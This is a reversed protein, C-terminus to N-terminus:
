SGMKMELRELIMEKENGELIQPQAYDFIKVPVFEIDLIEADRFTIKAMAGLRTEESWMQDFVFNGLSYIIYGDKYKEFTEVVHPHHGIVLDAGADIAARAFNTQSTHSTLVYETGAHMSVVVIDVEKKLAGVQAKMKETDMYSLGYFDGDTNKYKDRNYTYALFGFKVGKAEIIVPRNIDDENVGAGVYNMGAGDLNEITSELGDAGFNMMHNNALSLVDFGAFKLGEVSQPDTRFFFSDDSVLSGELITTELNGFAIDASNTITATELFPYKWDGRMIMRREVERSLMIDGVAVLVVDSDRSLELEGVRMNRGKGMLRLLEGSFSYSNSFTLIFVFFVSLFALLLASVMIKIGNIM